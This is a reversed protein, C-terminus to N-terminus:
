THHVCVCVCVSRIFVFTWYNKVCSVITGSILLCSAIMLSFIRKSESGKETKRRKEKTKMTIKCQIGFYSAERSRLFLSDSEGDM